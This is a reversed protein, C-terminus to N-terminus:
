PDSVGAPTRPCGHQAKWAAVAAAPSRQTGKQWALLYAYPLVVGRRTWWDAPGCVPSLGFHLHCATGRASGTRGVTGLQQGAAVTAGPRAAPTLTALHSGYYRVGDTGALSFSLGGRAEGDNSASTWTDKTSTEVLRGAAPAVVASGCPAFIDTAPYDHHARGYHVAAGPAKVPFVNVAAPPRPTQTPTPTPAQNGAVAVSPAPSPTAVNSVTEDRVGTAGACGALLAVVVIGGALRAATRPRTPRV